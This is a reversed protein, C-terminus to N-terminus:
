KKQTAGGVVSEGPKSVDQIDRMIAPLITVGIDKGAKTNVVTQYHDGEVVPIDSTKDGSLIRGIRRGVEFGTWRMRPERTFLAGENAQKGLTGFVPLKQSTAAKILDASRNGLGNTLIVAEAGRKKLDEMLTQWNQDKTYPTALAEVKAWECRLLDDKHVTSLKNDPDFLVAMKTAKPMSGRAIPVTLTLHHPLFVGTANDTRPTKNSVFGLLFPNNAISFVIPISPKKDFAILSTTDLMTVLMAAGDAIAKDVQAGVNELKGGATYEVLKYKQATKLSQNIGDQLSQLGPENGYDVSDLRIIAVIKEQSRTDVTAATSENASTTANSSNPQNSGGGCGALLLSLVLLFNSLEPLRLVKVSSISSM